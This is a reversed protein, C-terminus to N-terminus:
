KSPYISQQITFNPLIRIYRFTVKHVNFMTHLLNLIYIGANEHVHLARHFWECIFSTFASGGDVHNYHYVYEEFIFKVRLM